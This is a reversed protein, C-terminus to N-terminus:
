TVDHRAAIRSVLATFASACMVPPPKVSFMGRTSGFPSPASISRARTGTSGTNLHSACVPLTASRSISRVKLQPMPMITTACASRASATAAAKVPPPSVTARSPM